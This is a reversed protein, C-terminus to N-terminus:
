STLTTDKPNKTTKNNLINYGGFFASIKNLVNEIKNIIPTSWGLLNKFKSPNTANFLLKKQRSFM